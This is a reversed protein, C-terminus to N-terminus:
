DEKSISKTNTHLRKTEHFDYAKIIKKLRVEENQEVGSRECNPRVKVNEVKLGRRLRNEYESSLVSAMEFYLQQLGHMTDDLLGLSVLFIELWLKNGCKDATFVSANHSLTRGFNEIFEEVNKFKGKKKRELIQQYKRFQRHMLEQKRHQVIAKRETLQKKETSQNISMIIVGIFVNTFIFNGIFIFSITFLRSFKYGKKDMSEQIDTWGDVSVYTFLSMMAKSISGWHEKDSGEGTGFLYYGMIGFIYMLLLLLLIINILWRKITDVLARVLVQLGKIFSVTRLTRLTRFARLIKLGEINVTTKHALFGVIVIEFYSFKKFEDTIIDSIFKLVPLIMSEEFLKLRGDSSIMIGPLSIKSLMLRTLRININDEFFEHIIKMLRGVDQRTIEEKNEKIATKFLNLFTQRDFELPIEKVNKSPFEYSLMIPKTKLRKLEPEESGLLALLCSLNYPSIHQARITCDFAAQFWSIFQERAWVLGKVLVLPYYAFQTKLHRPLFHDNLSSFIVELLIKNEKENQGKVIIRFADEDDKLIKFGLLRSFQAEDIVSSDENAEETSKQTELKLFTTLSGSYRNFDELFFHYLPTSRYVRWTFKLSDERDNASTPEEGPDTRHRKYTTRVSRM